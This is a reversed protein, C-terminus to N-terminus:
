QVLEPYISALRQQVLHCREALTGCARYVTAASPPSVTSVIIEVSFGSWNALREIPRVFPLERSPSQPSRRKSHFVRAPAGPAAPNEQTGDESVGDLCNRVMRCIRSVMPQTVHEPAVASVFEWTAAQLDNGPLASIPRITAEGVSNPVEFGSDILSQATQASRIVGDVTSRALGFRDKVYAEFTPHTTRYLRKARLEGLAQGVEFFQGIGREVIGELRDKLRKEAATLPITDPIEDDRLSVMKLSSLLRGCHM